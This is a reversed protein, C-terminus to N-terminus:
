LGLSILLDLRVKKRDEESINNADAQEAAKQDGLLVQAHTTYKRSNVEENLSALSEVM